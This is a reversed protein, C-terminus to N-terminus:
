QAAAAESEIANIREAEIAAEKAVQEAEVMKQMLPMVVSRYIGEAMPFKKMQQFTNYVTEGESASMEVKMTRGEGDVLESEYIWKGAKDRRRSVDQIQATSADFAGKAPRKDKAYQDTDLGLGGAITESTKQLSKPSTISELRKLNKELEDLKKEEPVNKMQDIQSEVSKQIQDDSVNEVPAPQPRSDKASDSGGTTQATKTNAKNAASPLYKSFLYIALVVHAAVSVIIAARLATKKKPTQEATQETIIPEPNSM